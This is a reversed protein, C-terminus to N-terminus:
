YCWTGTAEEGIVMKGLAPVVPNISNSLTNDEALDDNGGNINSIVVTYTQNGPVLQFSPM